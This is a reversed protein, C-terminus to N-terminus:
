KTGAALTSPAYGFDPPVRVGRQELLIAIIAAHHLTHQVLFMLERGITTQVEVAAGSRHTLGNLRVRDETARVTLDEVELTLRDIEDVAAWPETEIATGRLRADYTLDAAGRAAVLARVHDLCHRVHGGISGSARSPAANYLDRPLTTIVERLSELQSCLALAPAFAAQRAARPGATSSAAPTM